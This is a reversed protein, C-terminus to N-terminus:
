TGRRKRLLKKEEKGKSLSLFQTHFGGKEGKRGSVDSFKPNGGTAGRKKRRKKDKEERKRMERPLPTSRKKKRRKKKRTGGANFAPTRRGM